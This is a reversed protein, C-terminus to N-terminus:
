ISPAYGIYDYDITTIKILYENSTFEFLYYAFEIDNDSSFLCNDTLDWLEYSIIDESPIDIHVGQMNIICIIQKAPMRVGERDLDQNHEKKTRKLTVTQSTEGTASQVPVTSILMMLLIICEISKRLFNRM